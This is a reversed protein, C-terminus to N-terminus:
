PRAVSSRGSSNQWAPRPKPLKYPACRLKWGTLIVLNQSKDVPGGGPTEVRTPTDGSASTEMSGYRVLDLGAPEEVSVVGARSRHLKLHNSAPESPRQHLM